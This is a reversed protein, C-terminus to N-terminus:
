AILPTCKKDVQYETGFLINTINIILNRVILM